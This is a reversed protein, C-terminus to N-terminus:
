PKVQGKTVTRGVAEQWGKLVRPPRHERPANWRSARRYARAHAEDHRVGAPTRRSAKM